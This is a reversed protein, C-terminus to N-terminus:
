EAHFDVEKHSNDCYPKNKSAGCRCLAIRKTTREQECSENMLEINGIVYVPGNQRVSAIGRNSKETRALDTKDTYSLAGTPCKEIVTILEDASANDPAVWPKRKPDFVQPLGRVCEAAHICLDVDYHVDLERSSYSIRKGKM